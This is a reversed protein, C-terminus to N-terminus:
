KVRLLRVLALGTLLIVMLLTALTIQTSASFSTKVETSVYLEDVNEPGFNIAVASLEKGGIFAAVVVKQRINTLSTVLIQGPNSNEVTDISAKGQAVSFILNAPDIINGEGDSAIAFINTKKNPSSDEVFLDVNEVILSDSLEKTNFTKVPDSFVHESNSSLIKVQYYYKTNLELNNIKVVQNTNVTSTKVLNSMESTKGFSINVLGLHSMEIIHLSEGALPIALNRIIKQTTSNGVPNVNKGSIEEGVKTIKTNNTIEGISEQVSDVTNYLASSGEPDVASIITKEPILSVKTSGVKKTNFILQGITLNGTFKGVDGISSSPTVAWYIKNGQTVIRETKLNNSVKSEVFELSTNDYEFVFQGATVFAPISFNSVINLKIQSEPRVIFNSPSIYVSSSSEEASFVIRQLVASGILLAITILSVLIFAIKTNRM